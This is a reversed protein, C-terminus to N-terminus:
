AQDPSSRIFCSLVAEKADATKRMEVTNYRSQMAREDPKADITYLKSSYEIFCNSSVLKVSLTLLYVLQQM